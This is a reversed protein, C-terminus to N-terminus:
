AWAESGPLVASARASPSGRRPPFRGLHNLLRVTESSLAPLHLHSFRTACQYTTFFLAPNGVCPLLRERGLRRLINRAMYFGLQHGGDPLFNMLWDGLWSREEPMARCISFVSDVVKLLEPAQKVWEVYTRDTARRPGPPRFLPPRNILDAIGESEVSEMLRLLSDSRREPPHGHRRGVLKRRFFHHYEHALLLMPDPWELCALPDMLVKSYGRADSKFVIFSVAPDRLTQLPAAPLFRLAAARAEGTVDRRSWNRLFDVIEARREGVLVYHTLLRDRGERLSRRRETRRSPRYALSFKERLLEEHFTPDNRFLTIYGPDDFLRNWQDRSPAKDQTLREQVPWFADLGTFLFNRNRSQM